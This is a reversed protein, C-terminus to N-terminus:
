PITCILRYKGTRPCQTITSQQNDIALCDVLIILTILPCSKIVRKENFGAVRPSGAQRHFPIM